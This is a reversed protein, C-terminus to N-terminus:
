RNTTALLLRCVLHANTVPTCVHARGIEHPLATSLLRDLHGKARSKGSGTRGLTCVFLNGYVPQFDMLSVDRGLAFGLGLLGNWFHYEEPVDDKVTADM